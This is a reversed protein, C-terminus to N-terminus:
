VNKDFTIIIDLTYGAIHTPFNVHKTANFTNLSDKFQNSYLHDEDMHVNVDGVLSINENSSVLIEFLQRPFKSIKKSIKSLRPYFM